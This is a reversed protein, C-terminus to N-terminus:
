AFLSSFFTFFAVHPLQFYSSQLLCLNKFHADEHNYNLLSWDKIIKRYFKLIKQHFGHEFQMQTVVYLSYFASLVSPLWSWVRLLSVSVDQAVKKKRVWDIYGKVHRLKWLLHARFVIRFIEKNFLRQQLFLFSSILEAHSAVFFTNQFLLILLAQNQARFLCFIGKTWTNIVSFAIM